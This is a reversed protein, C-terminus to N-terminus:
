FTKSYSNDYKIDNKIQNFESLPINEVEDQSMEYIIGIQKLIMEFDDDEKLNYLQIYQKTSIDKWGTITKM